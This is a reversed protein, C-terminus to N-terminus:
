FSLSDKAALASHAEAQGRQSAALTACEAQPPCPIHETQRLSGAVPKYSLFMM